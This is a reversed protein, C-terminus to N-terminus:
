RGALSGGGAGLVGARKGDAVNWVAVEGKFDTTVVRKGDDTFVARLPLEGAFDMTRLRNGSSEWVVVQGDRGCSVLRGEHGYSVCLTGSAHANWSKVQKGEQM